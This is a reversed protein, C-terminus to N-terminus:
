RKNQDAKGASRGIRRSKSCRADRVRGRRYCVMCRDNQRPHYKLWCGALLRGGRSVNGAIKVGPAIMSYPGIITEHGVFTSVHVIAHDGIETATSVFAFPFIM